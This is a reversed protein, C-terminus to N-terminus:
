TQANLYNMLLQAVHARNATEQPEFVGGAGQVIGNVTSWCVAEYAWDSIEGADAYSLEVVWEGAFGEGKYQAYRYFLTALQERTIAEDPRFTDDPFGNVIGQASAWRVAEAYWADQEVDEYPMLYNVVPAGEQRWLATVLMARTATGGPAFSTETIGDMLGKTLVYDIAEHYWLSTDVDSYGKSACDHFEATVTVYCRPMTFTYVGDGKDTLAVIRGWDDVVTISILECGADPEVSLIVKSGYGTYICSSQVEGGESDEVRVRYLPESGNWQATYIVNETVTDSVAPSWGAFAYSRRSPRGVFAPTESNEALGSYIQDAFVEENEVGDTYVVTYTVPASVVIWKAYLTTDDSITYTDNAQYTLGSGDSVTNWGDFAYGNKQLNGTNGKVTVAAGSHYANGDVPVSGSDAGNADYTMTYTPAPIRNQVDVTKPATEGTLTVLVSIESQHTLGAAPLFSITPQTGNEGSLTYHIGETLTLGDVKVVIDTAPASLNLTVDGTATDIASGSVAGTDAVSGVKFLFKVSGGAPVNLWSMTMGSDAGEVKTVVQIGDVTELTNYSNQTTNYAYVKRNSYKGIWFRTAPTSGDPAIVFAPDDETAAEESAAGIMAVQKLKNNQVTAILAAYDSYAGSTSSNGLQTDCGFSFAQQGDALDAEFLVEYPDEGFAVRLADLSASSAYYRDQEPETSESSYMTWQESYSTQLMYSTNNKQYLGAVDFVNGSVMYAMTGNSIYYSENHETWTRNDMGPYVIQVAKSVTQDVVCRYWTGSVPSSITLTSAAANPVDTYSGNVANASQWQYDSANAAEMVLTVSSGSMAKGYPYGNNKLEAANIGSAMATVLLLGCVACLCLLIKGLRKKM